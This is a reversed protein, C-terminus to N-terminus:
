AGKLLQTRHMTYFLMLAKVWVKIGGTQFVNNGKSFNHMLYIIQIYWPNIMQQPKAYLKFIIFVTLM